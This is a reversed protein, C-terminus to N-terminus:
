LGREPYKLYLHNNAIALKSTSGPDDAEHMSIYEAAYEKETTSEQPELCKAINCNSGSEGNIKTHDDTDGPTSM